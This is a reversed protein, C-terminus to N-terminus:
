KKWKGMGIWLASGLVVAQVVVLHVGHETHEQVTLVPWSFPCVFFLTRVVFWEMRTDLATFTFTYIYMLSGVFVLLGVLGVMAEGARRPALCCTLTYFMTAMGLGAAFFRGLGVGPTKEVIALALLLSAAMPGAVNLWGFLWKILFVAEPRVPKAALFGATGNTREPAFVGMASYLALILGGLIWIVVALEKDSAQQAVLFAATFFCLMATGFLLKWRQERWEKWVMPWTM